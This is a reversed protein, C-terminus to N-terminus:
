KYIWTFRQKLGLTAEYTTNHEWVGKSQASMYLLFTLLWVIGTVKEQNICNFGEKVSARPLDAWM